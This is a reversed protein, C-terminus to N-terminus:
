GPAGLAGLLAEVEPRWFRYFRLTMPKDRGPVQCTFWGLRAGALRVQERPAVIPVEKPKGTWASMWCFLVHRETLAVYYPRGFMRTSPFLLASGRSVGSMVQAGILIQQQPVPASAIFRRARESIKQKAGEGAAMVSMNGYEAARRVARADAPWV